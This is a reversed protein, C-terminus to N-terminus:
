SRARGTRFQGHEYLLADLALEGHACQWLAEVARYEPTVDATSALVGLDDEMGCRRCLQALADFLAAQVVAIVAQDAAVKTYRRISDAISRNPDLTSAEIATVSEQWWRQSEREGAVVSRCARRIEPGAKALVVPYRRRRATGPEIDDSSSFLTAEVRDASNGPMCDGIYRLLGLNLVVRGAYIAVQREHVPVEEPPRRSRKFVGMRQWARLGADNTAPGFWSWTLPTPVGPVAESVNVRTWLNFDGLDESLVDLSDDILRM